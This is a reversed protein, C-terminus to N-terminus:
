YWKVSSPLREEGVKDQPGVPIGLFSIGKDGLFHVPQDGFGDFGKHDASLKRIDPRLCARYVIEVAADRTNYLRNLSTVSCFSASSFSLSDSSLYLVAISYEFSPTAM